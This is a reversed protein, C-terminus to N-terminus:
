GRLLLGVYLLYAGFLLAGEKRSLKMGGLMLPYILASTGLMWWVDGRFIAPSVPIPLILGAVGLIGLLNFINSGILNAIAVDTQRRAAAVLTTAVEPASTGAAVITLGIVRESLGALQAIRVSGAVLMRGGIILLLLGAVVALVSLLLEKHRPHLARAAAQDSLDRVEAPMADVRAIRISYGVFGVLVILFVGAEVRDILGDRASVLFGLSAAFMVPWELRVVNGRIPLSAVMATLGAIFTLNFINSGVVNGIAIDPQHELGAVVSVVLEPLSTGMAVVTLGIVAPTLGALAAIAVAGRVLLEGGGALIALGLVVLLIAIPLTM